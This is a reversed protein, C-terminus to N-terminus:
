IVLAQAGPTAGTQGFSILGLASREDVPAILLADEQAHMIAELDARLARIANPGSRVLFVSLQGRAGRQKLLKFVRRWRRRCRIDYAVIHLPLEPM